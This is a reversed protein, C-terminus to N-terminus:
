KGGVTVTLELEQDQARNGVMWAYFLPADNPLLEFVVRAGGEPLTKFVAQINPLYAPVTVTKSM